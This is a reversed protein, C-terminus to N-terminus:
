NRKRSCLIDLITLIYPMCIVTKTNGSPLLPKDLMLSSYTKTISKKYKSFSPGSAIPCYGEMVYHHPFVLGEGKEQTLSNGEGEIKQRAM